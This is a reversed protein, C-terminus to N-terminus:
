AIGWGDFDPALHTKLRTIDDALADTITARAADSVTAAPPQPRDEPTRGRLQDLRQVANAELEKFRKTSPFHTKLTKKLGLPLLSRAPKDASRYFERDLDEPRTTTDVGLFGYVQAMVEDRHSRLGEATVVLLQEPAFHELYRDVQLAYRSYDLYISNTALAEELPLKEAGEAVRTQYHSRIRAVPDRVIYLLRVDPILGAIREPVGPYQPFKTYVNSAEGIAVAEPGVDAFLRRYWEVGRGSLAKGAFFEPAKFSPMFVQPHARLYHYMSTTGAKMAGILLFNPLPGIARRKVSGREQTVAM